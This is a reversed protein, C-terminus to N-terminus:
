DGEGENEMDERGDDAQRGTDDRGGERRGRLCGDRGQRETGRRTKEYGM